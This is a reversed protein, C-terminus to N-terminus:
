ARRARALALGSAAVGVTLVVVSVAIAGDISPAECSSGTAPDDICTLKVRVFLAVWTSGVGVLLGGIGAMWRGAVAIIVVGGALVVLGMTPFAVMLFGGLAGLVLGALWSPVAGSRRM